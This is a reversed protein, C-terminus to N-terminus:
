RALWGAAAIVVFLIVLAALNRLRTRRAKGPEICCSKMIVVERLVHGCNVRATQSQIANGDLLTCQRKVLMGM